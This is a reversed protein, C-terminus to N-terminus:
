KLGRLSRVSLFAMIVMGILEIGIIHVIIGDILPMIGIPPMIGIIGLMIPIIPMIGFMIPPMIGIIDSMIPMIGLMILRMIPPM